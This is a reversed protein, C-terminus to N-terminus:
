TCMYIYVYVYIHALNWTRVAVGGGPSPYGQSPRRRSLNMIEGLFGQRPAGGSLNDEPPARSPPSRISLM